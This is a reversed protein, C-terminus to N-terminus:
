PSTPGLPTALSAGPQPAAWRAQTSQSSGFVYESLKPDQTIKRYLNEFVMEHGRANAHVDDRSVRLEILNKSTAYTDLLDIVPVGIKDILPRSPNFQTALLDSSVPEPILLIVMRAGQKSAEEKMQLLCWEFVAPTFPALKGDMTELSDTSQVLADSVVRRLL